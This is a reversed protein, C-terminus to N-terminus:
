VLLNNILSQNSDDADMYRYSLYENDLILMYQDDDMSIVELLPNKVDPKTLLCTRMVMENTIKYIGIISPIKSIAVSWYEKDEFPLLMHTMFIRNNVCKDVWSRIKKTYKDVLLSVKNASTIVTDMRYMYSVDHIYRDSYRSPLDGTNCKRIADHTYFCFNSGDVLDRDLLFRYTEICESAEMKTLAIKDKWGIRPITLVVDDQNLSTEFDVVCNCKHLYEGDVEVFYTKANLRKIFNMISIMDSIKYNRKISNYISQKRKPSVTQVNEMMSEGKDKM